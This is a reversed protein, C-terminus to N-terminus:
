SSTIELAGESEHDWGIEFVIRSDKGRRAKVEVDVVSGPNVTLSRDGQKFHLIGHKLGSIIAEFYAVAEERRMTSEFKFKGRAEGNEPRERMEEHEVDSM